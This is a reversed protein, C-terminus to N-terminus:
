QANARYEAVLQKIFPALDVSRTSEMIKQAEAAGLVQAPREAAKVAEAKAGKQSDPHQEVLSFFRYAEAVKGEAARLKALILIGELVRWHIKMEILRDLAQMLLEEAVHFNKLGTESEALHIRCGNAGEADGVSLLFLEIGKKGFAHGEEYRGLANATRCLNVCVWAQGSQGGTEDLHVIAEQGSRLAEEYEHVHYASESRYYQSWGLGLSHNVSKFAEYAKKALVFSTENEELSTHMRILDILVWGAAVNNEHREFIKLSQKFFKKAEDYRKQLVSVQGLGFLAWAAGDEYGMKDFVELSEACYESALEYRGEHRPKPVLHYLSWATGWDDKLEKFIALSEQACEENRDFDGIARYLACLFHLTQGVDSLSGSKRALELGKKMLIEAQDMRGRQYCFWGWRALTRALPLAKEASSEQELGALATSAASFTKEGEQALFRIEYYHYLPDCAASISAADRTRVAWEWASQINNHEQGIEDLAQAEERGRLKQHRQTLFRLFFDMHRQHAAEEEEPMEQLKATFFQRLLEHVEFRGSRARHLLSREVLSALLADPAKAVKQAEEATFEGRFVSLARVMKKDGDSLLGWSYEFVARLSRQREPVDQRNSALFDINKEIEARIERFSLIQVWVAALELGLPAGGVLQCIRVVEKVEDEKITIDARVRQVCNMFFKFASFSEVSRQTGEEPYELGELELIKENPIDLRIRSSVLVRVGPASDLLEGVFSAAPLLHEFNDLVLLLKRDKFFGILEKTMDAEGSFGFRVASAVAMLVADPSAVPALSVFYVGDAFDAMQEAAAQVVVRTKGIGGQGLLTLLRCSPDQLAVKIKKLETERGFFLTRQSPLNNAKTSLTQLPPFDQRSMSPHVLGLLVQPELLDKLLHTGLPITKGGRPLDSLALASPTLVIQGGWASAVICATRNTVPGFQDLDRLGIEGAHVGVRAKIVGAEEWDTKAIKEQLALACELARRNEFLSFNGEAGYHLPKGGFEKVLSIFMEDYRTFVKAMTAPNQDWKKVAGEIDSFLFVPM